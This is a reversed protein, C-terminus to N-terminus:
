IANIADKLDDQMVDILKQAFRNKSGMYPLGYNM